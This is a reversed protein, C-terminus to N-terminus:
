ELAGVAEYLSDAFFRDAFANPHPDPATVWLASSQQLDRATYRPGSGSPTWSGSFGIINCM